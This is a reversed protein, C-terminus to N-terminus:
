RGVYNLGEHIMGLMPWDVRDGRLLVEEQTWVHITCREEGGPEGHVETDAKLRSIEESTLECAYLHSHYGCLTAGMQRSGLAVLRSPAIELGVEESVEDAATQLADQGPKMSSGGPLEFVASEANRVPSRFEQVLVIEITNGADHYMFVTSIDPRIVICEIQKERGEETIHVSPRVSYLFVKDKKPGARFTWEVDLDELSNGTALQAEYWAQFDPRSWIMLPVTAEGNKRAAGDGVMKLAHGLTAELSDGVPVGLKEAYYRQYRVKDAGEPNGWVVKGSNKWVGWEDNTTFAPMKGEIDRPVWFVICDARKLGEDEWEVQALYNEAWAGDAPEPVFVHGDFGMKELAELAEQRWPKGTNGRPTPGALFLTKTVETPFSELAYVIKMTIEKLPVLLPWMRPWNLSRYPASHM